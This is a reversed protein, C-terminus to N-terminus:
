GQQPLTTRKVQGMYMEMGTRQHVSQVPLLHTFLNNNNDNNNNRHHGYNDGGAAAAVTYFGNMEQETKIANPREM